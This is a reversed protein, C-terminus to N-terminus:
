LYEYIQFLRYNRNYNWQSIFDGKISTEVLRNNNSDAILITDRSTYIADQPWNLTGNVDVMTLVNFSEDLLLINNDLSNSLIFKHKASRTDKFTKEHFHHPCNLKRILIEPQGTTKNIKILEGNHFLVAIVSNENDIYQASNVHTSQSLTAYDCFRHDIDKDIKRIEKLPTVNYGIDILWSTWLIEGMANVELILDLGSSSVMYGKLTKSISHSHNFLSNEIKIKEEGNLLDIGLIHEDRRDGKKEGPRNIIIYINNGDVLIGYPNRLYRVSIIETDSIKENSKCVYIAGGIDERCSENTGVIGYQDRLFEKKNWFEKLINFRTAIFSIVLNM